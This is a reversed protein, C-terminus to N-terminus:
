IVTSKEEKSSMEFLRKYDLLDDLFRLRQCRASSATATATYENGDTITNYDTIQRRSTDIFPISVSVSAEDTVGFQHILKDLDHPAETCYGERVRPVRLHPM